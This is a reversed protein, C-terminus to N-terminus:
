EGSSEMVGFQVDASMLCYTREGLRHCGGNRKRDRYTSQEVYRINPPIM